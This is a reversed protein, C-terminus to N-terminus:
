TKGSRTWPDLPLPHWMQVNQWLGTLHDSFQSKSSYLYLKIQNSKIQNSKNQSFLDIWLNKGGQLGLHISLESELNYKIVTLLKFIWGLRWHEAYECWVFWAKFNWIWSLGVQALMKIRVAKGDLPGLSWRGALMVSLYLKEWDMGPGNIGTLGRMPFPYPTLSGLTQASLQLEDGSARVTELTDLSQSPAPDSRM